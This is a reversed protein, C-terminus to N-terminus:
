PGPTPAVPQAAEQGRPLRWMIKRHAMMAGVEAPWVKHGSANIMPAVFVDGDGDKSAPDGTARRLCRSGPPM